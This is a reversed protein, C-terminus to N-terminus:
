SMFVKIIHLLRIITRVNVCTNCVLYFMLIKGMTQTFAFSRPGGGIDFTEWQKKISEEYIDSYLHRFYYYKTSIIHWKEM